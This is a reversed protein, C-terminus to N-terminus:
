CYAASAHHKGSTGWGTRGDTTGGTIPRGIERAM